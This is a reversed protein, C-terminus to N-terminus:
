ERLIRAEEVNLAEVYRLKVEAKKHLISRIIKEFNDDIQTM